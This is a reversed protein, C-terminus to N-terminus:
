PPQRDTAEAALRSRLMQVDAGVNGMRLTPGKPLDSWGGSREFARYRRLAQLLAGYSGFDPRLGALVVGVPRGARVAELASAIRGSVDLARPAIHWSPEVARPDLRGTLLDDVLAVFSATLLMDAHAFAISPAPQERPSTVARLAESVTASGYDSPQLGLSDAAALM